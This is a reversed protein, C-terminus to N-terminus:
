KWRSLVVWSSKNQVLKNGWPTYWCRFVTHSPSEGIFLLLFLVVVVVSMVVAESLLTCHLIFSLINDFAYSSSLFTFCLTYLNTAEDTTLYGPHKFLLLSEAVKIKNETQKTKMKIKNWKMVSQELLVPECIPAFNNPFLYVFM